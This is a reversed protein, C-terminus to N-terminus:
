IGPKSPNQKQTGASKDKKQRVGVNLVKKSPLEKRTKKIVLDAYREFLKIFQQYGEIALKLAAVKQESVYKVVNQGNEWTQHNYYIKGSKKIIRCLKGREMYKIALIKELIEHQTKM